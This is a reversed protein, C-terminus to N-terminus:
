KVTVFTLLHSPAATHFQASGPAALVGVAALLLVAIRV